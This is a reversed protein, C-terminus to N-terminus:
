PITLEPIQKVIEQMLGPAHEKVLEYTCPSLGLFTQNSLVNLIKNFCSKVKNNSFCCSKYYNLYYWFCLEKRKFTHYINQKNKNLKSTINNYM